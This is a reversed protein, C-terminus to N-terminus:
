KTQEHDLPNIAAHCECQCKTGCFKCSQRCRDHLGHHCATSLYDHEEAMPHKREFERLEKEANFPKDTM